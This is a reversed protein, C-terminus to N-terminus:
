PPPSPKQKPAPNRQQAEAKQVAARGSILIGIAEFLFAMSTGSFASTVPDFAGFNLLTHATWALVFSAVGLIFYFSVAFLRILMFEILRLRSGGIEEISKALHAAADAKQQNGTRIRWRWISVIAAFIFAAVINGAINDWTMEHEM